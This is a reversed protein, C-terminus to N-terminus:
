KVTKTNNKPVWQAPKHAKFCTDCRTGRAGLEQRTGTITTDCMVRYPTECEDKSITWHGICKVSVVGTVDVGTSAPASAKQVGQLTKLKDIFAQASKANFKVEPNRFDRLAFFIKKKQGESLAKEAGVYLNQIQNVMEERKTIKKSMIVWRWPDHIYLGGM